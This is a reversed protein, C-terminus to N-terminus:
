SPMTGETDQLATHAVKFRQDIVAIYQAARAVADSDGVAESEVATDVVDGGVRTLLELYAELRHIRDLVRVQEQLVLPAMWRLGEQSDAMAYRIAQVRVQGDTMPRM